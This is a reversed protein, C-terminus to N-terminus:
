FVPVNNIDGEIINIFPSYAWGVTNKWVVRYWFGDATRGIIPLFAGWTIRGTQVSAVNPEARLRVTADTQGRVGFDPQGALGLVSNGSVIPPTFENGDVFLYFGYAWGQYGALQLLFWRADSDRGVIAYTEGRLVRGIRNGGLSPADRINLVAAQIVTATIAGPPIAPLPTITPTSTITPTFTIGPFPTQFPTGGGSGPYTLQLLAPGTFEVFDVQLNVTGGPLLVRAQQPVNATIANIVTTGNITFLATDDATLTFLVEGANFSQQRTFRISFNDAGIGPIPQGNAQIPVGPFSLNDLSTYTTSAVPAGQFATNNFFQATWGQAFPPQAETPTLNSTVLGLLVVVILSCLFLSLRKLM